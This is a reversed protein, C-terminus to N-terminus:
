ENTAAEMDPYWDLLMVKIAPNGANVLEKFKAVDSLGDTGRYHYPIVNAPAFELVADAAEEVTMTYPLNMPIFAMDIDALTRMEPIGATDGAVYVRYGDRQILYGNGRGKVHFADPSEPLNYMPLAQLTFGLLSLEDGNNMVTTQAALTEPLEDYVTQPAVIRTDPSIIGELTKVSLHDSHTHTLLVLDPALMDTYQNVDGIPDVYVTAGGWTLVVSAHSIPTVSPGLDELKNTEPSTTAVEESSVEAVPKESDSHSSYMVYVGLAIVLVAVLLVISKM